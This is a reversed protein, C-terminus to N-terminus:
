VMDVSDILANISDFNQFGDAHISEYGGVITLYDVKQLADLVSKTFNGTGIIGVRM